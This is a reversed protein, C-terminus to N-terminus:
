RYVPLCLDMGAYISECREVEKKVTRRFSENGTFINEPRVRGAGLPMKGSGGTGSQASGGASEKRDRFSYKIAIGYQHEKQRSCIAASVDM